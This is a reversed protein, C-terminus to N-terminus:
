RLAELFVAGFRALKAQGIGHIAGMQALNKPRKQAMERLTKDPFIMFAPVSQEQALSMRVGKLRVLIDQDAQSLAADAQKAKRVRAERDGASNASRSGRVRAPMPRYSFDAQGRLLEKGSPTMSIGGHGAVDLHVFGAATM